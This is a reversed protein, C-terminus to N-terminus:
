SRHPPPVVEVTRALEVAANGATDQVNYTVAYTGVVAPDVASSDIVVSGSIDGDRDDSATANLESYTAGQDMYQPNDGLLTIVPPTTDPFIVPLGGFTAGFGTAGTQVYVAAEVHVGNFVDTGLSPANGSFRIEALSSCNKFATNGILSLNAPLTIGTLLDCNKFAQNRIATVPNDEITEPIILEGTAATDCANITITDDGTVMYTLDSLDAAHLPSAAFLLFLALLYLSPKKM